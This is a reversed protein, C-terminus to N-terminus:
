GLPIKLCAIQRFVRSGFKRTTRNHVDVAHAQAGGGVRGPQHAGGNGQGGGSIVPADPDVEGCVAPAGPDLERGVAPAGLDAEGGGAPAGPDM